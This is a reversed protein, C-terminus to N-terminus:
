KKSEMLPELNDSDKKGLSAKDMSDADDERVEGLSINKTCKEKSFTGSEVRGVENSQPSPSTKIYTFCPPSMNKSDRKNNYEFHQPSSVCADESKTEDLSM